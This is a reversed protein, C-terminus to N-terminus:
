LKNKLEVIAACTEYDESQEYYHLTNDLAAKFDEREIALYQGSSNIECIKANKARKKIAEKIGDFTSYYIINKIDENKSIVSYDPEGNGAINFQLNPIIRRAM